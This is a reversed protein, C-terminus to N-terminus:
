HIEGRTKPWKQACRVMWRDAYKRALIRESQLLLLLLLMPTVAAPVMSHQLAARCSDHISLQGCGRSDRTCSTCLALQSGPQHPLDLVM